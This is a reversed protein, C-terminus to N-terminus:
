RLTQRRGGAPAGGRDERGMPSGQCGLYLELRAASYRLRWFGVRKAPTLQDIFFRSSSFFACRINTAPLRRSFLQPPAASTRVGRLSSPRAGHDTTCSTKKRLLLTFFARLPNESWVLSSSRELSGVLRIASAFLAQPTM